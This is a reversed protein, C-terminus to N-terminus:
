GGNTDLEQEIVEEDRKDLQVKGYNEEIMRPIKLLAEKFDYEQPVLPAYFERPDESLSIYGRGRINNNFFNKKEGAKGFIQLYGTAELKGLSIRVSFQDRLKGDIDEVDPRQTALIIFVGAQRGKLIIQTLPKMIKSRKRFDDNVEAMLAGWEDAILFYPEMGYYAYDEGWKYQSHTKMYVFRKLMEKEADQLCRTIREMGTFTHNKFVPLEGVSALDANKPDCIYVTGIKALNQVLIFLFFSKGGGTGGGILMHPSKAYEWVFDKMLQISTKTVVVDEVSIRNTGLGILLKYKTYGLESTTEILDAFFMQELIPGLKMMQEHYKRGDTPVTIEAINHDNRYYINPIRIRERVSGDTGKHTQREVWNRSIVMRALMQRHWVRAFFTGKLKSNRRILILAAFLLIIILSIEVSPLIIRSYDGNNVKDKVLIQEMKPYYFFGIGILFPLAMLLLYINYCNKHFNRIRIGRYHTWKRM